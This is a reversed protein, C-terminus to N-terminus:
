PKEGAAQSAQSTSLDQNIFHTSGATGECTQRTVPLFSAQLVLHPLMEWRVPPM